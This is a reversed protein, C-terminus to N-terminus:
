RGLARNHRLREALQSSFYLRGSDNLHCYDSFMEDPVADVFNWITEQALKQQLFHHAAEPIKNRFKSQEPMLVIAVKSGLKHMASILDILADARAQQNIAYSNADFWGYAQFHSLQQRLYEPGSHEPYGFRLPAEWPNREAYMIGLGVRTRFLVTRLAHNVSTRNRSIWSHWYLRRRFERFERKRLLEFLSLSTPPIVWPSGVLWAPHICILTLRPHVGNRILPDALSRLNDMSGGSGCLGAVRNDYADPAALRNTEIGERATSMGIYLLFDADDGQSSRTARALGKVISEAREKQKWSMPTQTPVLWSPSEGTTIPLLQDIAGFLLLIPIGVVLIGLYRRFDVVSSM